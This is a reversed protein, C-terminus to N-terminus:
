LKVAEIVYNYGDLLKLMIKMNLNELYETIDLLTLGSQRIHSRKDQVGYLLQLGLAKDIQQFTIQRCVEEYDIGRLILKGNIALKSVWNAVIGNLAPFPFYNIIDDALIEELENGDIGWDLNTIDGNQRPDNDIPAFPDINLYGKIAGNPNDLLLNVKM